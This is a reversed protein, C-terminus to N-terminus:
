KFIESALSVLKPMVGEQEATDMIFKNGNNKTRLKLNIHERYLFQYFLENYYHRYDERSNGHEKAYGRILMNVRSRDSIQNVPVLLAVPQKAEYKDMRSEVNSLRDEHEKLIAVAESLVDLRSMTDKAYYGKKRISPLVDHTVWYQFEKAEPKRSKLILKYIGSESIVLMPKGGKGTEAMVFKGGRQTFYQGFVTQNAIDVSYDNPNISQIEETDLIQRLNSTRLELVNCVDKAVWWPEGQEDKLIRVPNQKFQFVQLDTNM